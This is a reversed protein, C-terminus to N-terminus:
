ILIANESWFKVSELYNKKVLKVGSGGEEPGLANRMM